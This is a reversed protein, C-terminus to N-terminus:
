LVAVIGHGDPPKLTSVGSSQNPQDGHHSNHGRELLKPNSPVGSDVLMTGQHGSQDTITSAVGGPGPLSVAVRRNVQTGSQSKSSSSILGGHMSADEMATAKDKNVSKPVTTNRNSPVNVVLHPEQVRGETGVDWPNQEEVCMRAYKVRTSRLTVDDVKIPRGVRRAVKLLIEKDYYEQYLKPLQVWITVRDIVVEVPDFCPQWKRVTLVHDAVMWPGDFLVRNYDRKGLLKIILTNMWRIYIRKKDNSSLRIMPCFPDEDDDDEPDSEEPVFGELDEPMEEGREAEVTKGSVMSKYSVKRCPEVPFLRDDEDTITLTVGMVDTRKAKKTSREHQDAEPPNSASVLDKAPEIICDISPSVFFAATTRTERTSVARHEVSKMKDNTAIQLQYGINVVFANPVPDVSIWEGDKFVQLGLVDDQLLITILNPDCHKPIGMTLSPDPSAPYYNVSLLTNESLGGEFYGSELGVGECIMELIKSSLKTVEKTYNGVVERYRTPKEPWEEIWKELPHCPHRLGDRWFHVSERAYSLTSSFVRCSRNPDESYLSARDEAPMEFFEKFVSMASSMLDEPVGHNIVQFFGLEQRAKLVNQVAIARDGGAGGTDGLDIVPITKCSSVVLERAREEPPFVYKEPVSQIDKRCSLLIPPNSADILDKAPEVTCDMSPNVFFAASTRTEGTSLARHEVSKLMDNTVIQLQYGINVVFANPVPEVSTWEGDKFVQLGLVDDQLLITILNPDCHKPLGMTLSTDPSPPYHNVTLLTYESLGGEFYGSQLGVGECIMELIKSALKTVEKAYSGVDERYRTPKEPWEGIWKELPHCPHRLGDRWFHFSETAYNVNSSFVKCSRKPDLSYLSARDEVPMEFFEKFVSMAKSMVDEPVGHNIVQFFGLEQSAKLINQVAVARDLETTGGLDIIPISKSPSAAVKGALEERPIIYKEPISQIDDRCSLLVNSEELTEKWKDDESNIISSKDLKMTVKPKYFEEVAQSNSMYTALFDKFQFARYPPPNCENIVPKATQITDEDSPYLFFAASTRARSSNTVARQEAGVLRGNSTITLDTVSVWHQGCLCQLTTPCRDMRWEKFVQLGYVDGQLLITILCPDRHEALGLTLGPDPCRPYHNVVMFPNRKPQIIQVAQTSSASKIPDKSCEIAKEEFVSMTDDVLTEPVGHNIVEFFGLEQSAELIQQVIGTREPHGLDIVPITKCPSVNIDLRLGSLRVAMCTHTKVRNEGSSRVIIDPDPTVWIHKEDDDRSSGSKGGRKEECAERVAHLIESTSTYALCITVLLSSNNASFLMAKEAALRCSESLLNLRGAFHVRVGYREVISGQKMLGEITEQLLDMLYKVEEPKRRFNDISFAYITVCKVRFEYCYKVMAMLSLLGYRHAYELRLNHKRAFRRNGDMIFAIHNPMPGVSIVRVLFQTLADHIHDVWTIKIQTYVIKKIARTSAASKIPTREANLPRTRPLCQISS